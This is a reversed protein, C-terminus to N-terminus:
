LDAVAALVLKEIDGQWLNEGLHNLDKRLHILFEINGKGGKIPSYDLNIVNFGIKQAELITHEIVNCHVRHDHVIGNKGVNEPGAEFQPKILCVADCNNKLIEFMPKMILDLSIFSVDTMAFDPLGETFDAPTSYRFNQKEMVIVQPNDRLKWSLQNYGVDLAYVLKAHNQLAVDTFGGTSAGIDLCVKDTLDINFVNLAKELKYGGRSVYKRSDKKVYFVENIPFKEGSKDIRQHNHDSILGAMIAHQAETRSYFLGQEFLLVDARKKEM